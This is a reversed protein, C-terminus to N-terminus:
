PNVSCSRASSRAVQNRNNWPSSSRMEVSASSVPYDWAELWGQMIGIQGQQTLAIDRALLRLEPDTTRPGIRLAMDVAQAHHVSMERAFEVDASSEAPRDSWARGWVLWGIFLGLAAAAVAGAALAWRRKTM